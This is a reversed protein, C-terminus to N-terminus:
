TELGMKEVKKGVFVLSHNDLPLSFFLKGTFKLKKFM